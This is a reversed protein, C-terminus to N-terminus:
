RRFIGPKKHAQEMAMPVEDSGSIEEGAQNLYTPEGGAEQDEPLMLAYKDRMADRYSSTAGEIARKIAKAGVDLLLKRAVAATVPDIDTPDVKIRPPEGVEGGASAFALACMSERTLTPVPVMISPTRTTKDNTM